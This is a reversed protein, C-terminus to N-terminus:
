RVFESGSRRRSRTWGVMGLLALSVPLFWILLMLYQDSSDVVGNYKLGYEEFLTWVATVLIVLMATSVVLPMILSRIKKRRSSMQSARERVIRHTRNVLSARAAVDMRGLSRMDLLPSSETMPTRKEFSPNM